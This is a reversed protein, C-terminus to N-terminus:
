REEASRNRNPSPQKNQRFKQMEEQAQNCVYAKGKKILDIAFQYIQPFYDSAHTIKYPRYGLWNINERINDIFESSEKEPNTDDYRLYCQGNMVEASHFNVRM